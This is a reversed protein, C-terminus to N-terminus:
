SLMQKNNCVSREKDGKGKVGNRKQRQRGRRGEHHGRSRSRLSGEKEAVVGGNM